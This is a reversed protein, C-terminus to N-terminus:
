IKEALVIHDLFLDPNPPLLKGIVVGFINIAAIITCTFLLQTYRPWNQITKYLYANILQFLVTADAALKKHHIIKFGNRELLAKLGFSSYRAYDYPQEHEDWVFPVTLLLKGNPKLVRNIESLFENPNFVHELVQNCLASDFCQDDYPFHTGDYLDDAIGAARTVSSELDLGRYAEVKFLSRYPKTGCGVDLLNGSINISLQSIASALNRRAFYFPNFFIAFWSPLFQQSQYINKLKRHVRKVLNLTKRYSKSFAEYAIMSHEVKLEKLDIARSSLKVDWVTNVGCHTGSGDHGINKVLSEGPYLTLKDALFASAYWRIAWSDIAGKTQLELMKSYGYAGNFDFIKLLNRRRLEELLAKGDSNFLAWGRRWTAWGWCDAGRLFFAEPLEQDTPYVYGHISIVRDDDVFRELAENMYTLFYPSTVMDDELVIVQENQLLVETVGDIISKALGFNHPRHHITVSRFGKITKIYDRVVLVAHENDKTRPADSYVILDHASAGVNHLLAEVTHLVHDIRAYVFLVIPARM